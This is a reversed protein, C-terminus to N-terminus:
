EEIIRYSSTIKAVKDMMAEASCYKTESLEIARKVADESLNHGRLVYEVHIDTFIMPYEKRREASVVVEFGTLEQRSKELISVIDMGTCGALGALLLEMPRAGPGTGGDAPSADIDFKYGSLTATFRMGKVHTAKVEM